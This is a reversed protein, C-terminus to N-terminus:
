ELISVFRIELFDEQDLKKRILYQGTLGHEVRIKRLLVCDAELEAALTQLTTVSALYEEEDLGDESGDKLYVFFYTFYINFLWNFPHSFYM